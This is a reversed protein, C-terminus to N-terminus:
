QIKGRVMDTIKRVLEESGHISLGRFTQAEIKLTEDEIKVSWQQLDQSGTVASNSEVAAANLELMVEKLAMALKPDTEDGLLQTKM